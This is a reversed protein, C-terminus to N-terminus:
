SLKRTLAIGKWGRIDGRKSSRLEPRDTMMRAFWGMSIPQSRIGRSEMWWESFIKYVDTISEWSSPDFTCAQSVFEGIIDNEEQYNQTARRIAKPESLGNHQWELCGEIMWNLIGSFESRLKAELKDKPEKNKGKFTVTFPILRMRRWFAHGAEKVVPKHNAALWIKHQPRFEFSEEYLRRAVVTDNGTLMKVVRTDFGKDGDAESATVFRTGRMRALDNRPGDGARTLFSNFDSTQAYNGLLGRVIELLISKGNAGAGHLFFLCEERTDGTLAYGLSRQIFTVLEEDGDMVELVFREWRPCTASPDFEVPALRTILDERRHRRLQGTRLDVTGNEVNLLWPDADFAEPGLSIEPETTALDLLARVRPAQESKNAHVLIKNRVDEDAAHSAEAYLARVTSKAYREIEGTDDPVWCTGEWIRWPNRARGVARVMDKHQEIFRRANGLDTLNEGHGAPPYKTVHKTIEQLEKDELPPVVRAANEERLAALIAEYGAARRRMSGALSTLLSNREGSGIVKPLPEAGTRAQKAKRVLQLIEEPMPVLRLTTTWKYKRGTDPHVSPPAIVYGGDGLLDLEIKKGDKGKLPRIMRAVPTGDTLPDYYLHARGKRSQAERTAPLNLQERLVHGSPGDIDVVIPGHQSNCAIGINADPWKRWWKKIQARDTTALHFGGREFPKKGNLPFVAWGRKAYRLAARLLENTM